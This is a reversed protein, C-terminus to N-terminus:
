RALLPLGCHAGGVLQGILWGARLAPPLPQALPVIAQGRRGQQQHHQHRQHLHGHSRQHALAHFVCGDQHLVQPQHQGHEACQRRLAVAVQGGQAPHALRRRTSGIPGSSGATGSAAHAPQHLRKAIRKGGQHAPCQRQRAPPKHGGLHLRRVLQGVAHRHPPHLRGHRQPKGHQAQLQACAAGRSRHGFNQATAPQHSACVQSPVDM